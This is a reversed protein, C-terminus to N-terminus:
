SNQVLKLVPAAYEEGGFLNTQGPINPVMEVAIVGDGDEGSIFLATSVPNTPCLASKVTSSVAITQRNDDPQFEVVLQLKRKATSKTNPDLINDIIKQMEYDIREMIAGRAMQVISTRNEDM